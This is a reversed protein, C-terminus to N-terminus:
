IQTKSMYPCFELLILSCKRNVNHARTPTGRANMVGLGITSSLGTPRFGRGGWDWDSGLSFSQIVILRRIGKRGSAAAAASDAAHGPFDWAPEPFKAPHDLTTCSGNRLNQFQSNCNWPHFWNMKNIFDGLNIFHCAELFPFREKVLWSYSNM